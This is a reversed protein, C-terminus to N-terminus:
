WLWEAGGHTRACEAATVSAEGTFNQYYRAALTGFGFNARNDAPLKAFKPNLLSM